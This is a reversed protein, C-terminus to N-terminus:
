TQMKQTLTDLKKGEKGFPFTHKESHHKSCIVEIVLSNTMPHTFLFETKNRLRTYQRSNGPLPPCQPLRLGCTKPFMLCDWCCQSGSSSSCLVKFVLDLLQPDSCAVDLELSKAMVFFRWQCSPGWNGSQRM